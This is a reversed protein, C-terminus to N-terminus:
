DLLIFDESPPVDIISSVIVEFSNSSLGSM